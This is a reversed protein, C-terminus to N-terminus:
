YERDDPPRYELRLLRFIEEESAIPIIRGSDTWLGSGDAKLHM